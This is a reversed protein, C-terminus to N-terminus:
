IFFMGFKPGPGGASPGAAARRPAPASRRRWPAPPPQAARVTLAVAAAATPGPPPRGCLTGSLNMFYLSFVSILSVGWFVYRVPLECGNALNRRFGLIIGLGDVLQIVKQCFVKGHRRRPARPPPAARVTLAVSAAATPGLPPPTRLSDRIFEYFRFLFCSHPFGRM